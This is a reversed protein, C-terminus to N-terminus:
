NFFETFDHLAPLGQQWLDFADDRYHWWLSPMIPGSFKAKLDADGM